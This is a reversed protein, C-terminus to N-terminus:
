CAMSFLWDCGVDHANVYGSRMGDHGAELSGYFLEAGMQNHNSLELTMSQDAYEMDMLADWQYLDKVIFDHALQVGGTAAEDLDWMSTLNTMVLAEGHKDNIVMWFSTDTEMGGAGIDFSATGSSDGVSEGDM